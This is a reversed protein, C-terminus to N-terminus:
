PMLLSTAAPTLSSSVRYGQRPHSYHLCPIFYTFTGTLVKAILIASLLLLDSFPVLISDKNQHSQSPKSKHSYHLKPSFLPVINTWNPKPCILQFRLPTLALSTFTLLMVCIANWVTPNLSDGGYLFAFLALTTPLIIPDRHNRTKIWLIKSHTVKCLVLSKASIILKHSKLHPFKGQNDM